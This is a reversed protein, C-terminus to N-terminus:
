EKQSIRNYGHYSEIKRSLLTDRIDYDEDTIQHLENDYDKLIEPIDNEYRLHNISNLNGNQDPFIEKKETITSNDKLFKIYDNIWKFTKEKNDSYDELIDALTDINLMDEVQKPHYNFWFEQVEKWINHKELYFIM